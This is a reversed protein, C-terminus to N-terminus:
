VAELSIRPFLKSFIQLRKKATLLILSKDLDPSRSKAGGGRTGLIEWIKQPAAGM